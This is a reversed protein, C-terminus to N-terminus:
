AGEGKDRPSSYHRVLDQAWRPPMLGRAGYAETLLSAINRGLSVTQQPALDGSLETLLRVLHGVNPPRAGRHDQSALWSELKARTATRPASGNLFNRLGNPSIAMEKAARRLSIRATEREISERLLPVPLTPVGRRGPKL